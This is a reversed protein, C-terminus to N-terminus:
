AARSTSWSGRCVDPNFGFATHMLSRTIQVSQAAGFVRQLRLMNEIWVSLEPQSLYSLSGPYAVVYVRRARAASLVDPTVPALPRACVACALSSQRRNEQWSGPCPRRRTCIWTGQPRVRYLQRAQFRARIWCGRSCRSGLDAIERYGYKPMGEPRPDEWRLVRTRSRSSADYRAPAQQSSPANGGKSSHQSRAVSWVPIVSVLGRPVREVEDCEDVTRAAAM